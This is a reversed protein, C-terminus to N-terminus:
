GRKSDQKLRALWLREERLTMNDLEVLTKGLEMAITM